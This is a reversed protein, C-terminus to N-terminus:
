LYIGSVEVEVAMMALAAAAKNAMPAVMEVVAWAASSMNTLHAPTFLQLANGSQLVAL